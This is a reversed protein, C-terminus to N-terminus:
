GRASEMQKLIEVIQYLCCIVTGDFPRLGEKSFGSLGSVFEGLTKINERLDSSM